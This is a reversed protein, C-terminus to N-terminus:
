EDIKVSKFLTDMKNEFQDDKNQEYYRQYYRLEYGMNKFALSACSLAYQESWRKPKNNRASSLDELLLHIKVCQNNEPYEDVDLAQIRFDQNDKYGNQINYNIKDIYESVPQFPIDLRIIYAEIEQNEKFNSGEKSLSASLGSRMIKWGAEDPSVFSLGLVASNKDTIGIHVREGRQISEAENGKNSVLQHTCSTSLLAFFFLVIQKM